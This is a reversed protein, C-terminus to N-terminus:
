RFQNIVDPKMKEVNEASQKGRIYGTFLHRQGLTPEISAWRRLCHVLMSGLTMYKNLPSNRGIHQLVRRM